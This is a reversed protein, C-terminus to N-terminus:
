GRKFVRRYKQAAPLSVREPPRQRSSRMPTPIAMPKPFEGTGKFFLNEVKRDIGIGVVIRGGLPTERSM